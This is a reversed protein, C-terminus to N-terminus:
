KDIITWAVNEGARLPTLTHHHNSTDNINDGSVSYSMPVTWPKKEVVIQHQETMFDNLLPLGYHQAGNVTLFSILGNTNNQLANAQDFAEIYLELAAHANYVGACGCMSEKKDTRHPASDTGAFFKSAINPNSSTVANLLAVRHAEGKLIPLCYLHPRIGGVLL